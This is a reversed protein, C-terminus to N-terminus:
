GDTKEMHPLKVLIKTGQMPHSEIKMEGNLFAVRQKMSQIGMRKEGLAEDLRKEVDFGKGNDEIHLMIQSVSASLRVSVHSADAHKGINNLGEQILRYLTIETDFILELDGMGVSFFDVELGNKGAFEECYQRVTYALGFEKLSPPHLGYAMDRVTVINHQVLAALEFVRQRGEDPINPQDAYLTDLGIKITALDQALNDHLDVALKQRAVEQARMLQLSLESIREEAQKRKTIDISFGIIGIINGMEDNYPIKHTLVWMIGEPIKVPEEVNRKPAGSGMVQANDKYYKTAMDEPYLDFLSKGRIDDPSKNLVAAFSDNVRIFRGKKDIWYIMAPVTSLLVAREHNVRQLAEQALELDTIDRASVVVGSASKDTEFFPYYSIRMCRRKGDPFDLWDRYHVEEGTLCRDLHGKIQKDFIEKGFMEEVSHGIIEERSRKFIESYADNVTQYIYNSDIFSMPEHVASIILRYRGLEEEALEREGIEQQLQENARVLEATREEVRRELEEHAKRLGEEARKHESIELTLEVMGVIDGNSDRVPSAQIFWSRGDPTTKELAQPQGTDRAEEVPCDECPDSRTPWLEYCQRGILEERSMGLSECAARNAWLIRMEMDHYVVHEVLSDLITQKGEKAQKLATEVEIHRAKIVESETVRRRLEELEEMLQERTKDEDKM